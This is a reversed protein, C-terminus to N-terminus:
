KEVTVGEFEYLSNWSNLNKKLRLSRSYLSASFLEKYMQVTNFFSHNANEFQTKLYNDVAYSASGLELVKGNKFKTVFQVSMDMLFDSDNRNDFLINDLTEDFCRYFNKQPIGVTIKGLIFQNENLSSFEFDFDPIKYDTVLESILLCNDNIRANDFALFANKPRKVTASTPTNILVKSKQNAPQGLVKLIVKYDDLFNLLQIDKQVDQLNKNTVRIPKSTVIEDPVNPNFAFLFTNFILGVNNNKIILEPVFIKSM